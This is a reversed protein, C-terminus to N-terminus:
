LMIIIIHIEVHSEAIIVIMVVISEIISKSKSKHRKLSSAAAQTSKIFSVQTISGVLGIIIWCLLGAPSKHALGRRNTIQCM